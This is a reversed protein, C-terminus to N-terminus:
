GSNSSSGKGNDPLKDVLEKVIVCMPKNKYVSYLKIKKWTNYYIKIEKKKRM